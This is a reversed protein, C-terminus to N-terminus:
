KLDFFKKIIINDLPYTKLIKIVTKATNQKSYPNKSRKILATFEPDYIKQIAKSINKEIPLANIISKAQLRGAQRSGINVTPIKFSPAEIIGSSSNGIVGDVNKLMSFYKLKGLSGFAYANNNRKVFNEIELAIAKNGGDANPMTFFVSTEKLKSLANLLEIVQKKEDGELTVPHFTVMLNKKNFKINLSKELERKSLTKINEANEVGLSGTNFVQKPNEGLQIIRKKYKECSAFHIHSMKTIAHRMAEDIAGFTAEGGHLHAIPIRLLLAAIAGSLVEYRDGLLLIIDPKAQEITKTFLETARGMVKGIDKPTDSSIGIDVRKYIKIGDKIIEKVSSGHRKSLHSGSVIVKIDLSKDSQLKKILESMIGYDARSTTLVAITRKKM